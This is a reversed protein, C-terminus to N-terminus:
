HFGPTVSCKSIISQHSNKKGKGFSLAIIDKGIMEHGSSCYSCKVKHNIECKDM